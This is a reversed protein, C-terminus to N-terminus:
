RSTGALLRGPRGVLSERRGRGCACLEECSYSRGQPLALRDLRRPVSCRSSGRVLELRATQDCVEFALRPEDLDLLARAVMKRESWWRDPNVLADHDRPALSLMVAAEYVRGMRRAYQIRSFLLGPNNRLAPPVAKVLGASMPARTAAIRALALASVDPGALAAARAGASLYGTYLLRDARYAHDAKTLAAGFERLIASETLADFSGERWLARIIQSAEEAHGTAQAARAAAIKGASSQPPERMFFAAIKAPPLAHVALDAEQRERLWGRSPWGPHAELFVALSAFSPHADARLSAWELATREAPDNAAAALAVLGAVDGKKYLIAAQSTPLRSVPMVLGAAPGAAPSSLEPTVAPSSPELSATSAPPSIASAAALAPAAGELNAYAFQVKADRNSRAAELPAATVGTPEAPPASTSRPEVARVRASPDSYLSATEAPSGDFRSSSALSLPAFDPPPRGEPTWAVLCTAGLIVLLPGFQLMTM